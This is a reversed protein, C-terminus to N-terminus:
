QATNEPFLGASRKQMEGAVAVAEADGESLKQMVREYNAKDRNQSLKFVHDMDTVEVEFAVIANLLRRRYNEALNDYVTPSTTNGGEFHLSTKQLVEILENEGLFHINGRVHVSMYNWTSAQHPDTYWTASVYTHAGTFVCLVQPNEVFAKHHDTNRMIHGSLYLRNDREEIFVPIQTAVPRKDKDCGTVFAFPHRHIFDLVAAADKERFQPLKYM